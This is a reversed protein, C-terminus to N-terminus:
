FNSSKRVPFVGIARFSAAENLAYAKRGANTERKAVSVWFMARVKYDQKINQYDVQMSM